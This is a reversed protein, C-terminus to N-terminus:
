GLLILIKKRVYSLNDSNIVHHAFKRVSKPSLGAHECIFEFNECTVGISTFFWANAQDRLLQIESNESDKKPKTADLIAQFIVSLFLTKHPEQKSKEYLEELTDNLQTM